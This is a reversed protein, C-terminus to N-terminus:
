PSGVWSVGAASLKGTGCTGTRLIGLGDVNALAEPMMPLAAATPTEDKGGSRACVSGAEHSASGACDLEGSLLGASVFSHRLRVGM